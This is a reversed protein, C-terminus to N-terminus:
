MKEDDDDADNNNDNENEFLFKSKKEYMQHPALHQFFPIM